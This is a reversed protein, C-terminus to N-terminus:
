RGAAEEVVDLQALWGHYKALKGEYEQALAQLQEVKQRILAYQQETVALARQLKERREAM